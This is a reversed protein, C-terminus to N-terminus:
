HLEALLALTIGAIAETTPRYIEARLRGTTDLVFAQPSHAVDYKGDGSLEQGKYFSVRFQRALAGVDQEPGTLGIFDDSYSHLYKKMTSPTDRSGDVSILVVSVRDTPVDGSEYVDRFRAMTTPCVDPCHTFGFFVLAVKGKLRSLRFPEGDQDTLELDTIERPPQLERVRDYAPLPDAAVFATALLLAM